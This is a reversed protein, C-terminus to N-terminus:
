YYPKNHHHAVQTRIRHSQVHLQLSRHTKVFLKTKRCKTRKYIRQTHCNDWLVISIIRLIEVQRKPFMRHQFVVLLIKFQCWLSFVCRPFVLQVFFPWRFGIYFFNSWKPIWKVMLNIINKSKNSFSKFITSKHLHVRRRCPFMIKSTEVGQM